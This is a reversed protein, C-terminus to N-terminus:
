RAAGGKQRRRTAWLRRRQRLWDRIAATQLAQWISQGAPLALIGRRIAKDIMLYNRRNVKSTRPGKDNGGAAARARRAEASCSPSCYRPTRVGQGSGTREFAQECWACILLRRRFRGRRNAGSKGVCRRGCFRRTPSEADFRRGCHECKKQM